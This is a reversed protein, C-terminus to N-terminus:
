GCAGIPIAIALRRPAREGAIRVVLPVCARARDVLQFGGIWFVYGAQADKACSTYTVSRYGGSRGGETVIGAYDEAAPAVTVTVSSAPPLLPGVKFFRIGYRDAPPPPDAPYGDGLGPYVLPGLVLDNPAVSSTNAPRSQDCGAVASGRPFLDLPPPTIRYSPTPLPAPTSSTCGGVTATLALALALGLALAPAPALAPILPLRM